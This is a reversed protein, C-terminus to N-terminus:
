LKKLSELFCPDSCYSRVCISVYNFAEEVLDFVDFDKRRGRKSIMSKLSIFDGHAIASRVDYMEKLKMSLTSLDENTYKNIVIGVKLQFQKRISDEINFKYIDPNHTLLFELIGILMVFMMKSELHHENISKISEGVYLIKETQENSLNEIQESLEIIRNLNDAITFYDFEKHITRGHTMGTLYTFLWLHFKPRDDSLAITKKLNGKFKDIFLLDLISLYKMAREERQLGLENGELMIFSRPYKKRTERASKRLDRFFGKDDFRIILWSKVLCDYYNGSRSRRLFNKDFFRNKGYQTHLNEFIKELYKSHLLAKEDSMLFYNELKKSKQFDIRAKLFNRVYEIEEKTKPNDIEIGM